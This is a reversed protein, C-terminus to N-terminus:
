TVAAGAVVTAVRDVGWGQAPEVEGAADGRDAVFSVAEREVVFGRAVLRQQARELERVARNGAAFEEVEDAVAAIAAGLRPEAVAPGRHLGAAPLRREVPALEVGFARCHERQHAPAREVRGLRDAVQAEVLGGGVRLPGVGPQRGLELPSGGGCRLRPRCGSVVRRVRVRDRGGRAVPQQLHDALDPLPGAKGVVGIGAEPRQGARDALVVALEHDPLHHQAAATARGRGSM